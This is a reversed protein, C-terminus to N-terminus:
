DEIARFGTITIAYNNPNGHQVREIMRPLGLSEDFEGRVFVPAVGAAPNANEYERQAIEQEIRHFLSDITWDARDGADNITRGNKTMAVAVGDRVRLTMDVEDSYGTRREFSLALSYSAPGNAEWRAKAAALEESTIEPVGQTPLMMIVGISVIPALCAVLLKIPTPIAKVVGVVRGFLGTPKTAAAESARVPSTTQASPTATFPNPSEDALPPAQAPQPPPSKAQPPPSPSAQTPAATRQPKIPEVTIPPSVPQSSPGSPAVTPVVPQASAAAQPQDAVKEKAPPKASKAPKPRGPLNPIGSM